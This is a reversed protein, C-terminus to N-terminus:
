KVKVSLRVSLCVEWTVIGTDYIDVKMFVMDVDDDTVHDGITDRVAQRFQQVNVGGKREEDAATFFENFM